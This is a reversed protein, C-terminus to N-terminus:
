YYIIETIMYYQIFNKNDGLIIWLPDINENEFNIILNNKIILNIIKLLENDTINNWNLLNIKELDNYKDLAEKILLSIKKTKQDIYPNIYSWIIKKKESKEITFLLIYKCKIENNDYIIKMLNNSNPDKIIQYNKKMVYNFFNKINEYSKM